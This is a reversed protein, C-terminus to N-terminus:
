SIWSPAFDSGPTELVSVLEQTDINVAWLDSEDRRDLGGSGNSDVARAFIVWRSDSSWSPNGAFAGTLRRVQSGDPAMMLLEGAPAQPDNRASFVIWRGDPSWVPENEDLGTGYVRQSAGTAVETIVIDRSGEIESSHVIRRGDPSWSPWEDRNQNTTIRRPASQGNSVHIESNAVGDTLATTSFAILGSEVPSWSAYEDWAGTSITRQAGSGDANMVWIDYNSRDASERNSTFSIRRGDPSWRPIWDNDGNNTLRTTYGTALDLRYIENAGDAGGADNRAFVIQGRLVTAPTPAAMPTAAPASTPTPLQPINAALAVSDLDGRSEVERAPAWATGGDLMQVELWSGEQNRGTILLSVGAPLEGVLSFADDPGSRLGIPQSAVITPPEPTPTDDPEPTESPLPTATPTDSPAVVVPAEVAPTEIAATAAPTEDVPRTATPDDVVAAPLTPASATPEVIPMGAAPLTEGDRGSLAVYAAGAALLLLALALAGLWLRSRGSQEARAPPPPANGPPTPRTMPLTADAAAGALAPMQGTTAREFDAALSRTDGYREEPNKALAKLVVSEVAPPVDPRKERLPPPPDYVHAHAVAMPTTRVFPVDGALLEYIVVGFAYVDARRDVTAGTIQEPAMYAPTGLVTGSQTLKSMEGARVLGFDMLTVHDDDDLMVNAPKVDRHVMGRSHAYHLADGIQRAVRAADPLPMPRRRRRLWHDLSEGAVYQMVIYPIDQGHDGAGREAGVDYITVINSHHLNGAAIAEHQFRQVFQPDGALHPALVKIAVPRRLGTDFARYVIGMGGRGVESQVEYKGAIHRGILDM